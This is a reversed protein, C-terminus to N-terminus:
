THVRDTLCPAAPRPDAYRRRDADWGAIVIRRGYRYLDVGAATYPVTGHPLRDLPFWEIRACKHPEANSPEGQTTPDAARPRRSGTTRLSRYGPIDAQQRAVGPARPPSHVRVMVPVYRILLRYHRPPEPGRRPRTPPTR